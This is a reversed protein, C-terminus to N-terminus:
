RALTYEGDFTIAPSSACVAGPDQTVTLKKAPFDLALRMACADAKFVYVGNEKTARGGTAGRAAEGGAINTRGAVEFTIVKASASSLTISGGREGVEDSADLRYTGLPPAPEGIIPEEVPGELEEEQASACGVGAAALAVSLFLLIENARRM